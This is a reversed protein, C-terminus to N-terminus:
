SQITIFLMSSIIITMIVLIKRHHYLLIAMYIIVSTKRLQCYSKWDDAVYFMIFKTFLWSKPMTPLDWLWKTSDIHDCGKTKNVRREINLSLNGLELHLTSTGWDYMSISKFKWYGTFLWHSCNLFVDNMYFFTKLCYLMSRQEYIMYVRTLINQCPRSMQLLLLSSRIPSLCYLKLYWLQKPFPQAENCNIYSLYGSYKKGDM